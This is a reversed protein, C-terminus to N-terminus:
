VETRVQAPFGLPIRCVSFPRGDELTTWVGGGECRLLALSLLSSSGQGEGLRRYPAGGFGHEGSSPSPVASTATASHALHWRGRSHLGGSLLDLLLSGTWPRWSRRGYRCPPPPPALYHTPTPAHQQTVGEVRGIVEGLRRRGVEGRARRGEEKREDGRWRM